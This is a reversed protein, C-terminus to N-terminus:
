ISFILFFFFKPGVGGNDKMGLYLQFLFRPICSMCCHKVNAHTEYRAVFLLLAFIISFAIADFFHFELINRGLVKLSPFLDPEPPKALDWICLEGEDAGSALLNPSIASFEM